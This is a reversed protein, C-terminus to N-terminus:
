ALRFALAAGHPLRAASDAAVRDGPSFSCTARSFVPANETDPETGSRFMLVLESVSDVVKPPIVPRRRALHLLTSMAYTSASMQFDVQPWEQYM